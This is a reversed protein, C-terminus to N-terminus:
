EGRRIRLLECLYKRIIVLGRVEHGRIIGLLSPLYKSFFYAGPLKRYLGAREVFNWLRIPLLSILGALVRLHMYEPDAVSGSQEYSSARGDCLSSYQDRSIWGQNVAQDTLATGPYFTLFFYTVRNPRLRNYIRLAKLQGEITEGPAGGIHDINFAVGVKKLLAIGSLTKGPNYPRNYLRCVSKELSQVGVEMFRCGSEKLLRAIEEDILAPHGICQYPLHVHKRYMSLFERAWSHDSIFMDDEFVVTGPNWKKKAATLESIVNDPSRRRIGAFDRGYLRDSLSNNCFSCRFLCGRSTIITYASRFYPAQDYFLAKDPFPLNDLDSMLSRPPPRFVQGDQKCWINPISSGLREAEGSVRKGVKGSLRKGAEVWQMLDMFAGEGEGVCVYDVFPLELLREPLATAHIGGFLTVIEPKRRKVEEAVASDFAWTDTLTSFCLLDPKLALVREVVREREPFFRAIRPVELLADCFLFPHYVLEVSHGAAKALASLYEIAISEYAGYVFTIKM